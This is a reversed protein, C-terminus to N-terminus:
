ECAPRDRVLIARIRKTGAESPTERARWSCPPAPRGREEAVGGAEVAGHPLGERRASPAAKSRHAISKRPWPADRAARPRVRQRPRGHAVVHEGDTSSRSRSGPLEEADPVRHAAGGESRASCTRGPVKAPSQSKSGIAGGGAGHGRIAPPLRARRPPRVAAARTGAGAGLRQRVVGRLRRQVHGPGVGQVGVDAVPEHGPSSPPPGGPTGGPRRPASRGRRRRGRRGELAEALHGHGTSRPTRRRAAARGGEGGGDGLGQGAAVELAVGVELWKPGSSAGDSSAPETGASRRSARVARDRLATVGRAYGPIM